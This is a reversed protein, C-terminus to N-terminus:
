QFVIVQISAFDGFGAYIAGSIFRICHQQPFQVTLQNRVIQASVYKLEVRVQFFRKHGLLVRPFPFVYQSFQIAQLRVFFGAGMRSEHWGSCTRTSYAISLSNPRSRREGENGSCCPERAQRWGSTITIRLITFRQSHSVIDQYSTERRLCAKAKQKSSTVWKRKHCREHQQKSPAHSISKYRKRIKTRKPQVGPGM